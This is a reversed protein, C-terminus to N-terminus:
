VYPLFAARYLSRAIAGLAILALLLTLTLGFVPILALLSLVFSGLVADQWTFEESGRMRSLVYRRLLAGVLVGTCAHAILLVLVYAALVILGVGAGVFSIFLLILVFPTGLLLALGLVGSLAARRGGDSGLWTLISTTFRPFLGVLLGAAIMGALARVIVFIGAGFLAYREAQENTPLYAYSGSYTMAGAVTSGEPLILAQPANYTFNGRIETGPAISLENSAAVTVDGEYVGALSITTGYLRVDGRAGQTVLIRGGAALIEQARGAIEISAGALTLDGVVDGKISVRSGAVRVDGGVSQEVVATGAAVLVDGGVPAEVEVLGGAALVDKEVPATVAVHAGALYANEASPHALTLTEERMFLAAHAEVPVLALLSILTPAFIRLM